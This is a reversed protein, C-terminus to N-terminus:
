VCKGRALKVLERIKHRNQEVEQTAFVIFVHSPAKKEDDYTMVYDCGALEGMSFRALYEYKPSCAELWLETIGCPSVESAVYLKEGFQVVPELADPVLNGQFDRIAAHGFRGGLPEAEKQVIRLVRVQPSPKQNLNFTLLEGM